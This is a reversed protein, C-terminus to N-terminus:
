GAHRHGVGAPSGPDRQLILAPQVAQLRVVPLSRELLTGLPASQWDDQGSHVFRLHCDGATPMLKRMSRAYCRGASAFYGGLISAYSRCPEVIAKVIVIANSQNRRICGLTTTNKAITTLM